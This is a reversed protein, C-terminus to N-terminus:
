YCKPLTLLITQAKRQLMKTADITNDCMSIYGNLIADYKDYKSIVDCLLIVNDNIKQESHQCSFLQYSPLEMNHNYSYIKFDSWVHDPREGAADKYFKCYAKFPLMIKDGFIRKIRSPNASNKGAGCAIIYRRFDDICMSGDMNSAFMQFINKLTTVSKSTLSGTKTLLSIRLAKEDHKIINHLTILLHYYKQPIKISTSVTNYLENMIVKIVTPNNLQLLAIPHKGEIFDTRIFANIHRFYAEYCYYLHTLMPINSKKYQIMLPKLYSEYFTTKIERNQSTRTLYEFLDIVLFKNHDNSSNIILSDFVTKLQVLTYTINLTEYWSHSLLCKICSIHQDINKDKILMMDNTIHMFLNCTSLLQFEPPENDWLSHHVPIIQKLLQQFLVLTEIVNTHSAIINTYKRIKDMRAILLSVPQSKNETQTDM